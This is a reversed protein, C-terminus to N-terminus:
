RKALSLKKVEEMGNWIEAVRGEFATPYHILYLDVYDLKLKRLSEKLANKVTEGPLLLNLKTTVYLSTRPPVGPTSLYKAIVDGVTDENRYKQAADIHTIGSDLALKVSDTADRRFIATGTGYPLWPIANGDNLTKAM